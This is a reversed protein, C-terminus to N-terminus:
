GPFTYRKYLRTSDGQTVKIQINDVREIILTDKKLHVELSDPNNFSRTHFTGEEVNGPTARQYISDITQFSLVVMGWNNGTSIRWTGAISLPRYQQPGPPDPPAETKTKKCAVFAMLALIFVTKQM